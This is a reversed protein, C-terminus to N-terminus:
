SQKGALLPCVGHEGLLGKSVRRVLSSTLTRLSEAVVGGCVTGRGHVPPPTPSLVCCCSVGCCQDECFGREHGVSWCNEIRPRPSLDKFM